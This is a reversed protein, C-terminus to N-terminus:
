RSAARARVADGVLNLAAVTLFLAAAPILVQYPRTYLNQEAYAIMNGWSPGPPPVGFGLFSLAAEAIIAASVGLLSFTMLTPIINPVFHRLLIRWTRTGVLRASVIFNQGRLRLTASRAIRAVAPIAFFSIAWIVHIESPGLYESIVLLLILAPFALLMDMIRMLISDILGGVYGAVTGIATGVILGIGTSGFGVELSVRGGYLLRSMVDNGLPDTGLIHGRSFLPLNAYLINANIPKPVPYVEPWVFCALIVFIVFGFPVWLELSRLISQLRGPADGVNVGPGSAAGLQGSATLTDRDPTLVATGFERTWFRM